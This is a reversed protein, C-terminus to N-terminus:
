VRFELQRTQEAPRSDQHHVMVVPANWSPPTDGFFFNHIGKQACIDWDHFGPVYHCGLDITCLNHGM